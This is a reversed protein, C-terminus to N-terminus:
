KTKFEVVDLDKLVHKLGVKQGGFKSSPGWIHIEKINDSMGHYIREALHGVTSGPKMITADVSREKKPEKTFVRMISFKSLIRKKLEELNTTNKSSFKIFDQKSMMFKAETKRAVDFDMLDSKNWVILRKGTTRELYPSIRSLDDYNNVVVLVLDASNVLGKDFFDSNVAPLDIVQTVIGGYSMAGIVPMVTSYEYEAVLSSANTLCNLISSKGSNTFGVLVAQPGDKRIAKLTSKGVSKSKEKKDRLKILRTKLEAVMKESSKHKPAYKIMEQLFFIKEDVDKANLYNGQAKGYEPGANTSAM